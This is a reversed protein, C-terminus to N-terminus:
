EATPHNAAVIYSALLAIEDDSLQGAFSPMAGQGRSVRDIIIERTLDPNDLTPGVSGAAGADTLSHCASCSFSHFLDRAGDKDVEAVDGAQASAALIGGGAVVGGILALVALVISKRSNAQSM